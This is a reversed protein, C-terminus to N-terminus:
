LRRTALAPSSATLRAMRAATMHLFRLQERRGVLRFGLRIFINGGGSPQAFSSIRFLVEDAPFCWVQWDMQGREVHGELTRYNWGWVRGERGDLTRTEDYVDGVRVGVPIRLFLFHLILLMTRHELPEERDFVGEVISPEAFDYDRAITRAVDFSGAPLPQRVDDAYWGKEPGHDAAPDFNIDKERLKALKRQWRVPKPPVVKRTEITLRGDRRGGSIKLVRELFSTWMHFQVEKSMRLRDYLLESLRDGSRAWSEIEFEMPNRGKVRFEIQGAELHGGLTALRFSRPTTRIVRVPGDWPGPMRVVYEDNVQMAGEPGKVKQFTGFESPAPRDPDAQIMRMLEDPQVQPDRIRISYSRHFHPGAGDGVYQLDEEDIGAPLASPADADWDGEVESRSMPTTRWLYRWSTLTVGVPWRLATTVRRRSSQRKRAAM